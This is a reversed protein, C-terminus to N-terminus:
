SEAFGGDSEYFEKFDEYSSIKKTNDARFTSAKEFMDIQIRDLINRSEEGVGEAKQIPV